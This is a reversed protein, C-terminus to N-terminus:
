VPPVYKITGVARRIDYGWWRGFGYGKLVERRRCTHKYGFSSGASLAPTAIVIPGYDFMSTQDLCGFLGLIEGLM